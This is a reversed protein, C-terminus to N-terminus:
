EYLMSILAFSMFRSANYMTGCKCIGRQRFWNLIFSIKPSLQPSSRTEVNFSQFRRAVFVSHQTKYGHLCVQFFAKWSHVLWFVKLWSIICAQNNISEELKVRFSIKRGLPSSKSDTEKPRTCVVSKCPLTYRRIPYMCDLLYLQFIESPKLAM